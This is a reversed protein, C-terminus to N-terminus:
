LIVNSSSKVSIIPVTFNAFHAFDKASQAVIVGNGVSRRKM